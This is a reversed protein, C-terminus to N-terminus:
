YFGFQKHTNYVFVQLYDLETWVTTWEESDEERRRRRQGRDEQEELLAENSVCHLQLQVIFAWVWLEKCYTDDGTESM